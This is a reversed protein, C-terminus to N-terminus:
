GSECAVKAYNVAVFPTCDFHWFSYKNNVYCVQDAPLATLRLSANGEAQSVKGTENSLLQHSDQHSVIQASSM